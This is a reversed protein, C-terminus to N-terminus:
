LLASRVYSMRRAGCKPCCHIAMGMPAVCKYDEVWSHWCFVLRVIEWARRM